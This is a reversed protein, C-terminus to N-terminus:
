RSASSSIASSPRKCLLAEGNQLDRCSEVGRRLAALVEDLDVLDYCMVDKHCTRKWCPGCAAKTMIKEGRGYLDIEHACTPGFWAVTWVAQSISMHMGLSDGTFIVDCAAVSVLGDRLGRDMPSLVVDFGEAIAANRQQDEPGGLLVVRVDSWSRLRALLERHNEVSMKKAPITAACGTSLGIVAQRGQRSWQGHRFGQMQKEPATLPLHYEDRRWPGLALAETLLQTETKGNVFFKQHDNLGLQWLEQAHETAPIIAGTRPEAVFGFILDAQTRRLVGAAKLSKDAVLAVDFELASLQLLDAESTTLVRDIGPHTQLLHHAPADTVWTLHAKPFRRRLPALLSTSRVVAGLAGLHILLLRSGPVELSSCAEDCQTARSCPRDGRFHRCEIM